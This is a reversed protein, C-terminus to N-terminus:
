IKIARYDRLLSKAGNPIEKLTVGAITDERHDYLHGVILLMAQKISRPVNERYDAPSSTSAYGAVFRIKIPNNPHLIDTPWTECYELVVRGYYSIADVAYDVNVTLSEETGDSTTYNLSTISILPPRPIEIYRKAPFRDLYLDWTAQCLTRRTYNEARERAAAILSEVLDDDPHTAPSGDTDLRLHDRAEALTVPEVTPPTLQKIKM